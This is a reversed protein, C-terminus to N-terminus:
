GTMVYVICVCQSPIPVKQSVSGFPDAFVENGVLSEVIARVDEHRVDELDSIGGVERLFAGSPDVISVVDAVASWGLSAAVLLPIFARMSSLIVSVNVERM